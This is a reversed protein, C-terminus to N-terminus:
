GTLSANLKNAPKPSCHLAKDILGFFMQRLNFRRNIRFQLDALYRVGYREFKLSHFTGAIATKVNSLNYQGM